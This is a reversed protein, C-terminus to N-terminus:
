QWVLPLYDLTDHVCTLLSVCVNNNCGACMSCLQIFKALQLVAPETCTHSAQNHAGTRCKVVWCCGCAYAVALNQKPSQHKPSHHKLQIVIQQGTSGSQLRCADHQPSLTSSEVSSGGLSQIMLPNFYVTWSECKVAPMHLLCQGAEM